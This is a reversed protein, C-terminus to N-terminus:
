WNRSRPNNVQRNRRMRNGYAAGRGYNCPGCEPGLQGGVQSDELHGATWKAWPKVKRIEVLTKGCSICRTSPNRNANQRVLAADAQYQGRHWPKKRGAMLRTREPFAAPGPWEPM